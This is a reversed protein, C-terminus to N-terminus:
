RRAPRRGQRQPREPEVLRARQQPREHHADRSGDKPADLLERTAVRQIGDLERSGQGGVPPGLGGVDMRRRADSGGDRGADLRQRHIDLATERHGRREAPHRQPHKALRRRVDVELRGERHRAPLAQEDHIAFPDPEGMREHCGRRVLPDLREVTVGQMLAQGRHCTVLVLPRAMERPGAAPRIALHRCLQFPGRSPRRRAAVIPERGLERRM